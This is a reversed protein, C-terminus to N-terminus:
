LRNKIENQNKRSERFAWILVSGVFVVVIGLALSIKDGQLFGIYVMVGGIALIAIAYVCAVFNQLPFLRPSPMVVCARDELGPNGCKRSYLTFAVILFTIVGFGVAGQILVRSLSSFAGAYYLLLNGGFIIVLTFIIISIAGKWTMSTRVSV